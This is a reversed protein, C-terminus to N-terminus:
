WTDMYLTGTLAYGPPLLPTIKDIVPFRAKLSHLILYILPYGSVFGILEYVVIDSFIDGL